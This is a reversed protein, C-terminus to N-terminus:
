QGVKVLEVDFILVANPPIIGRGAGREGYGLYPPIVLRAKEGEKLLMIGEDWGPIVKGTGVPFSLPQGRDVSSDFKKGDKLMGTYHVQVVDGRKPSKGDTTKTKNYRLGTATKTYGKSLEDVTKSIAKKQAELAKKEDEFYNEFIKAADFNEATRGKKIIEISIISDGQAIADVVDQGELVHGFVTHKNNLWPTEKHTIFFQSGNTKPGSNAMSLVGPRDHVLSSDFEDKFKYGPDGSGTGLPCGGQIMFNPIVRHFTLGDYYKKGKYEQSVMTNTGNALSIFNAVTVPTKEFELFCKIVGKNTTIQAIITDNSVTKNASEQSKETLVENDLNTETKTDNKCATLAFFLSLFLLKM